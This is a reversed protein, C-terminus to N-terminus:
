FPKNTLARNLIICFLMAKFPSSTEFKLLIPSPQEHLLRMQVIARSKNDQINLCNERSGLTLLAALTAQHPLNCLQRLAKIHLYDCSKSTKRRM